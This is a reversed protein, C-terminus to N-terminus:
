KLLCKAKMSFTKTAYSLHYSNQVHKIVPRNEQSIYSPKRDEMFLTTEYQYCAPALNLINSSSEDSTLMYAM